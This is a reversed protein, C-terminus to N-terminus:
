FPMHCAWTGSVHVSGHQGAAVDADISGTAGKTSVSGDGVPVQTDLSTVTLTGAQGYWNILFENPDDSLTILTLRPGDSAGIQFTGPAATAVNFSLISASTAGALQGSLVGDEFVCANTDSGALSDGLAGSFTLETASTSNDDDQAAATAPGLVLAGTILLPLWSRPSFM